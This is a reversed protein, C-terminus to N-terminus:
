KKRPIKAAKILNKRTRRGLKPDTILKVFARYHEGPVFVVKNEPVASLSLKVIEEATMWLKEPITTKDFDKYYKAEFFETRTYAPCLAQVKVGTEDLELNLTETFEKLFAKTSTYMVSQPTQFFASVSSVNIIIGRARRIMIPLAARCFFVPAVNHVFLMERQPGFPTNDFYGLTGFGANNILVDIDNLKTIYEYSREIDELKSLDAVLVQAKIAQQDGLESALKELKEKRRAVLVLNFKQSALERAFAAGIGSSAGTIFATRPNDWDMFNKIKSM